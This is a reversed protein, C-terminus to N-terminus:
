TYMGCAAAVRVTGKAFQCCRPAPAKTPRADADADARTERVASRVGVCGFSKKQARSAATCNIACKVSCARGRRELGLDAFSTTVDDVGPAQNKLESQRLREKLESMEKDRREAM